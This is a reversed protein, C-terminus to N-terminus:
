KLLRLKRNVAAIDFAEPDFRRGRIEFEHVHSDTWGMAKQIVTHLGSLRTSGSVRIRRWVPPEVERLTIKLQYVPASARLPQSGPPRRSRPSM